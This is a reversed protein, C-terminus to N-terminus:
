PETEDGSEESRPGSEEATDPPEPPELLAILLEFTRTEGLEDASATVRTGALAVSALLLGLGLASSSLGGLAFALALNVAVAVLVVISIVQVPRAAFANATRVGATRFTAGRSYQVLPDLVRDLVALIPGVTWTERLDIVVVDPEPEDTLWRYLWSRRAVQGFWTTARGFASARYTASATDGAGDLREHLKRAVETVTATSTAARLRESGDIVLRATTSNRVNM